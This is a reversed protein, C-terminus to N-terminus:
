RVSIHVHDYHNASVSGRDSMSRWGEGARQTTWIKQAYIVEIIGLESANERAWRAVEWGAEGSIMVDIAQGTSHYSDGGSRKGGFSSLNPFQNCVARLVDRTRTTLGSEIGAARACSSLDLGGSGSSGSSEAGEGSSSSDSASSSAPASETLYRASVWGAEGRLNIQQWGDVSESTTTVKTGSAYSTIVDHETSPGTRVNISAKTWMAAGDAGLESYDQTPSPSPTPTESPAPSPEATEEAEEVVAETEAEDPEDAEDAAASSPSLPDVTPDTDDVLADRTQNRSTGLDPVSANVGVTHEPASADPVAVVANGPGIGSATMVALAGGVAVPALAWRLRRRRVSARRPPELSDVQIVAPAEVARRPSAM